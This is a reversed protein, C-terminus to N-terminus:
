RWSFAWLFLNILLLFLDPLHAAISHELLIKRVVHYDVIGTPWRMFGQIAGKILLTGPNGQLAYNGHPTGVFVFKWVWAWVLLPLLMIAAPLRRRHLLYVTIAAAVPAYLAPEKTFVALTLSLVALGYRQRLILFLAAVAFLGSWIDYQFSINYLGEGIFAPNIAALLGIFVAMTGECGYAPRPVRDACFDSTSRPLLERLVSFLPKRLLDREPPRHSQRWSASFGNSACEMGPLYRLVKLIGRNGM